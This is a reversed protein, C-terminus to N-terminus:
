GGLKIQLTDDGITGRHALRQHLARKRKEFDRSILSLPVDNDMYPAHGGGPNVEKAAPAGEVGCSPAKAIHISM